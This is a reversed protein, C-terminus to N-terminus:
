RNRRNKKKDKKDKKDKKKDNKRGDTTSTDKGTKKDTKASADDNGSTTAAALSPASRAPEAAFPAGPTIIVTSQMDPQDAPIQFNISHGGPCGAAAVDRASIAVVACGEVQAMVDAPLTVSPEDAAAPAPADLPETDSTSGSTAGAPVIAAIEADTLGFETECAIGDQDRDLGSPDDPFTKELEAQAESQTSFDDCNFRDGGKKQAGAPSAGLLSGATLALLLIAHLSLRALHRM